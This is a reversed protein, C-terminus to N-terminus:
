CRDRLGNFWWDAWRSIRSRLDREAVARGGPRQSSQSHPSAAGWQSAAPRRETESADEGGTLARWLLFVAGLFMLELVVLPAELVTFGVAAASQIMLVVAILSIVSVTVAAWM